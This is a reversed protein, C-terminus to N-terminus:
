IRPYHGAFSFYGIIETYLTAPMEGHAEYVRQLLAEAENPMEVTGHVACRWAVAVRRAQSYGARCERCGDNLEAMVEAERSAQWDLRDNEEAQRLEEGPM